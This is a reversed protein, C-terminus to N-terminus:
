SFLKNFMYDDHQKRLLQRKKAEPAWGISESENMGAPYRAKGDIGCWEFDILQGHLSGDKEVVLVNPPRLDGFVLDNAHLLDLAAKVDEYVQARASPELQLGTSGLYNDLSKGSLEMVVMVLGGGVQEADVSLLQPALSRAALLQHAEFNYFQAFKVVLLRGDKTMAEFVPRIVRSDGVRGTYTFNVKGTSTMVSRIYPSDRRPEISLKVGPKILPAYYEHLFSIARELALFLRTVRMLHHDQQPHKGLWVYDTLPQVVVRDLYVAGSICLWPGVIAIIFCPCPTARRLGTMETQSWYRAYSQAAQVWPDSKGTGIENKAEVVAAYAQQSSSKETFTVVGDSECKSIADRTVPHGLAGVLLRLTRKSRIPETDYLAQSGFMFQEVASCKEADPEDDKKFETTFFDFAPHFLQIPIDTRGYPRGNYIPIKSKEQQKQFASHHAAESASAASRFGQAVSDQRLTLGDLDSTLQSVDAPHHQAPSIVQVIVLVQVHRRPIKEPDPWYDQVQDAGFMAHEESPTGLKSVERYTVDVKYLSILTNDLKRSPGQNYVRIIEHALERIMTTLSVQVLFSNAIPDGQVFCALNFTSSTNSDSM